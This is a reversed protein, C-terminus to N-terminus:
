KLVLHTNLANGVRLPIHYASLKLACTKFDTSQHWSTNVSRRPNQAHQLTGEYNGM